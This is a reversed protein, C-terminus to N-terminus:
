LSHVWSSESYQASHPKHLTPRIWLKWCSAGTYGNALIGDKTYLTSIVVLANLTLVVFTDIFVGVMAVCGQEHPSKVQALAHAHPTSGMGAENSFLGRKAGQTM